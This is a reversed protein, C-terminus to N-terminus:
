FSRQGRGILILCGLGLLAVMAPEPVTTVYVADINPSAGPGSFLSGDFYLTAVDTTPNYEVLDAAGFTMGGLTADGVTSLLINGNTLIQVADINASSGFLSGDFYLAATDTTPNYEVLDCGDFSLGGLTASDATSLLINGNDFIYVADVNEVASFLDRDFYLTATDTTPNYEVLDGADFSLGRLTTSDTTSLIINGTELVHVADLDSSSALEDFYLTATDTTPDYEALEHKNFSLGGLTKYGDTSLIITAGAPSAFVTSILSAAMIVLMVKSRIFDSQTKRSEHAAHRRIKYACDRLVGLLIGSGGSEGLRDGDGALCMLDNAIRLAESIYKKNQYNM